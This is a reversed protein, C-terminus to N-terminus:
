RKLRRLCETIQGRSHLIIGSLSGEWTQRRRDDCGGERQNWLNLNALIKHLRPSVCHPGLMTWETMMWESSGCNIHSVMERQFLNNSRTDHTSYTVLAVTEINSFNTIFVKLEIPGSYGTLRHCKGNPPRPTSYEHQPAHNCPTATCQYTNRHLLAAIGILLDISSHSYHKIAYYSAEKVTLSARM